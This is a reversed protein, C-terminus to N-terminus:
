LLGSGWSVLLCALDSVGLTGAVSRSVRTVCESCWLVGAAVLELMLCVEIRRGAGAVEAELGWHWSWGTPGESWWM